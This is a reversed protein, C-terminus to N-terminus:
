EMLHLRGIVYLIRNFTAFVNKLNFVSHKEKSRKSLVWQLFFREKIKVCSVKQGVLTWSSSNILSDLTDPLLCVLDVRIKKVSVLPTTIRKINRELTIFFVIMIVFSM